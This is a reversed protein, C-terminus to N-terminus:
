PLVEAGLSALYQELIYVIQASASRKESSALSKIKQLVERPLRLKFEPLAADNDATEVGFSEMLRHVVESNFSRGAVSAATKIREHLEDPLRVPALRGNRGVISM